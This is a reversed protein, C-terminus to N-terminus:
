NNEEETFVGGERRGCTHPNCTSRVHVGRGKGVIIIMM